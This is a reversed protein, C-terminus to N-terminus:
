FPKLLRDIYDLELQPRTREAGRRRLEEQLARTRAEEMTDPVRVDGSEENGSVGNQLPRGLPDRRSTRRRNPGQQESPQPGTTQGDRNGLANNGQSGNGPDNGAEDQGDQGDEGEGPQQGTGFQRALQQGMERGGKQLAEIARQQAAGAAADRGEALAQGAERMATDAEGLPAPVQGTLDGFRQMLEGLARRMASQSRGDQERNTQPAAQADTNNRPAQAGENRSRSRDLLSGERRVIDQVADQQQRGQQRREANRRDRQEGHEPRANQLQELLRELEAMQRQADEMRGERASKEMEQAMRDLDRANMQPAAPDFPLDAGERRAQETLAELHRQIAERLEQTRRELEAQKAQDEPTRKTEELADRTAQRAQELARATRDIIGEELALALEWLRSQAENVAPQGRGRALLYAIARLNLFVSTSNEFLDPRDAIADLAQRSPQRDDPTLSLQKRVAIVARAALNNFTREPLDLTADPSAGTQGAADKAIIRAIVPLGAWPHATLDQVFAGRTQRPSGGIPATVAIPPADPRQALRIEAQVSAIGYDDEARWALRTQITTRGGSTAPGPPEVFAATPPNDPIIELTWGAIEQSGRRISLRAPATINRDAQWSASDLPSFATTEPGFSLTPAAGGGTVSVTLHAGTPIRPAPQGPQLFVPPLGTYAPPTLWAQVVTGPTPPGAPFGPAISKLIRSPAERGAAVLSAALALLILGRLARRDRGPLGPSPRGIQLRVIQARIRARHIQWLAEAEPTSSAPRDDLTALPRHRLGTASELRRDVTAPAPPAIHRLARWVLTAAILLALPFLLLRPWPPLYAPIDLLAAVAFAGLVGLPPWAAPWLQEFWLTARAAARKNALGAPPDRDSPPVPPPATM